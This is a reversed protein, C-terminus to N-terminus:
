ILKTIEFRKAPEASMSELGYRKVASLASSLALEPTNNEPSIHALLVRRTGNKYLYPLIEACQANSLHGKDSSIRRKLEEPYSGYRLMEEDYNSELIVASCGDLAAAMEESVYGTDTMSGIRVGSKHEIVYGVSCPSDHSTAFSKIIFDGLNVTYIREHPVAGPAPIRPIVASVAHIYPSNNKCFGKLGDIHDGHDHTIFVASIDCPTVGLSSLATVIKKGSGGADILFSTEGDTFFSSNGSSSSFLTYASVAM